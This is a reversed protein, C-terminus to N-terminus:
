DIEILNKSSKITGLSTFVTNGSQLIKGFYIKKLNLNNLKNKNVFM